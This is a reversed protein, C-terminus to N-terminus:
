FSVISKRKTIKENLDAISKLAKGSQERVHGKYEQEKNGMLKGTNKQINGAIEKSKGKIQEKNM